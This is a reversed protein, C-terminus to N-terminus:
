RAIIAKIRTLPGASIREARNFWQPSRVRQAGEYLLYSTRVFLERPRKFRARGRRVVTRYPQPRRGIEARIGSRATHDGNKAHRCPPKTCNPWKRNGEATKRVLQFSFSGGLKKLALTAPPNTFIEDKVQSTARRPGGGNNSLSVCCKM